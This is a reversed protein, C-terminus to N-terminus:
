QTHAIPLPTRASVFTCYMYQTQIAISYTQQGDLLRVYMRRHARVPPNTPKTVFSANRLEFSVNRQEFSANRLEFSVNRLEFSVNRLKNM